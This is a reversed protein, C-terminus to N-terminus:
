FLTHFINLTWFPFLLVIDFADDQRRYQCSQNHKVRPELTEITSRLCKNAQQAQHIYYHMIM